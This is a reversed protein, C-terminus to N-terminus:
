TPFIGIMLSCSQRHLKPVHESKARFSVSASSAGRLGVAVGEHHYVGDRRRGHLTTAASAGSNLPPPPPPHPCYQPAVVSLCPTQHPLGKIPSHQRVEIVAEAGRGACATRAEASLPPLRPPQRAPTPCIRTDNKHGLAQARQNSPNGPHHPEGFTPTCTDGAPLPTQM